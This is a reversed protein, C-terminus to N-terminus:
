IFGIPPEIKIDPDAETKPDADVADTSDESQTMVINLTCSSVLLLIFLLVINLSIIVIGRMKPNNMLRKRANACIKRLM